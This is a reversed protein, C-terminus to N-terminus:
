KLDGERQLMEALRSSFKHKECFIGIVEKCWAMAEGDDQGDNEPPREAGISQLWNSWAHWHDGEDDLCAPDQSILNMVKNLAEPLVLAGFPIYSDVGAANPFVSANFQLVPGDDRVELNWVREGLNAPEMPLLSEAQSSDRPILNEASALIKCGQSPLVLVRFRLSDFRDLQDICNGERSWRLVSGLEFRVNRNGARAVCVIRAGEPLKIESTDLKDLTFFRGAASDSLSIKIKNKDIEILGTPNSRTSLRGM